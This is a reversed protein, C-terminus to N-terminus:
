NVLSALPRYEEDDASIPKASFELQVDLRSKVLRPATRSQDYSRKPLAVQVAIFLDDVVVLSAVHGLLHNHGFLAM